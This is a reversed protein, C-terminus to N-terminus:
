PNIVSKTYTPHISGLTTSLEKICSFFPLSAFPFQVGEGQSM